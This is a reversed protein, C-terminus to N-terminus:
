LVDLRAVLLTLSDACQVTWGNLSPYSCVIVSGSVLWGGRGCERSLHRPNCHNTYSDFRRKLQTVTDTHLLSYLSFGSVSILSITVAELHRSTVNLFRATWGDSATLSGLTILQVGTTISKYICHCVACKTACAVM